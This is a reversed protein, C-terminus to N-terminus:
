NSQRLACETAGDWLVFGNKSLFINGGDNVWAVNLKVRLRWTVSRLRTWTSSIDTSEDTFNGEMGSCLFNTQDQPEPTLRIRKEFFSKVLASSL